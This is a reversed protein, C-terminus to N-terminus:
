KATGVTGLDPYTDTEDESAPYFVWRGFYSVYSVLTQDRSPSSGRTSPM